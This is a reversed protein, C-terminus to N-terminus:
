WLDPRLDHKRVKGDTVRIFDAVRKVPVDCLGKKLRYIFAREVGLAKALKRESGAVKIAKLIGKHESQGNSDNM